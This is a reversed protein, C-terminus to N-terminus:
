QRLRPDTASQSACHRGGQIHGPPRAAVGSWDGTGADRGAINEATGQHKGDRWPRCCGNSTLGNRGVSGVGQHSHYDPRVGDSIIRAVRLRHLGPEGGRGRTAREGKVIDRKLGSGTPRIPHAPDVAHQTRRGSNVNVSGRSPFAEMGFPPTGGKRTLPFPDLAFATMAQSDKGWRGKYAAAHVLHRTKASRRQGDSRVRRAAGSPLTRGSSPPTIVDDLIQRETSLGHTSGAANM